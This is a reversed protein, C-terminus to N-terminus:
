SISGASSNIFMKVIATGTTISRQWSMAFQFFTGETITNAPVFWSNVFIDSSVTSGNSYTTGTPITYLPYVSGAPGTPGQIGQEGQPGTAGAPGTPGQPGTPGTSGGGALGGTWYTSGDTNIALVYGATPGPTFYVGNDVKINYVSYTQSM